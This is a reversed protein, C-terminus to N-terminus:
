YKKEMQYLMIHHYFPACKTRFSSYSDSFWFSTICSLSCQVFEESEHKCVWPVNQVKSCISSVAVHRNMKNSFLNHAFHNHVFRLAEATANCCLECDVSFIKFSVTWRFVEILKSFWLSSCIIVRKNKQFSSNRGVWFHVNQSKNWFLSKLNLRNRM